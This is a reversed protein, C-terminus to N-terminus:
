PAAAEPLAAATPATGESVDAARMPPKRALFPREFVLFFMFAALVMSGPIAFVYCVLQAAHSHVHQTVWYGEAWVFPAHLLYLSYSFTGVWVLPGWALVREIKLDRVAALTAFFALPGFTAIRQVTGGLTFMQGDGAPFLFLWAIALLLGWGANRVIFRETGNRGRSVALESALIGLGFLPLYRFVGGEWAFAHELNWRYKVLLSLASLPLSVLLVTWANTRRWLLICLPFVFYWRWELTLTWFPGALIKKWFLMGDIVFSRLGPWEVDGRFWQQAPTNLVLLSLAGFLFLAAWYPPVIRRTRALAYRGWNAARQPKSLIPYSLCFGSLVFFLDVGGYGRAFLRSLSLHRGGLPVSPWEPKAFAVWAHYYLVMLCAIGRLGDIAAFRAKGEAPVHPTPRAQPSPDIPTTLAPSQSM